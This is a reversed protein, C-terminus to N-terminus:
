EGVDRRLEALEAVAMMAAPESQVAQAPRGDTPPVQLDVAVLRDLVPGIVPYPVFQLAPQLQWSRAPVQLLPRHQVLADRRHPAEDARRHSVPPQEQGPIRSM